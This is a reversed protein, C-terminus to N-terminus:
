IESMFKASVRVMEEQRTQQESIKRYLSSQQRVLQSYTAHKEDETVEVSVGRRQRPIASQQFRQCSIKFKHM